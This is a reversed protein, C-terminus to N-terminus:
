CWDCSDENRRVGGCREFGPCMECEINLVGCIGEYLVIEEITLEEGRM